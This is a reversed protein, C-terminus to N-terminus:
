ADEKIRSEAIKIYKKNLEIGIFSRKLNICAVGTTGSGICNDLILDGENSYTKILYECLALPKETPHYFGQHGKSFSLISIPFKENTMITDKMKYVM